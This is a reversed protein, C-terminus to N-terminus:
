FCRDCTCHPHKGSECYPNAKHDPAFPALSPHEYFERCLACNPDLRGAAEMRAIREARTESGGDFLPFRVQVGNECENLTPDLDPFDAM